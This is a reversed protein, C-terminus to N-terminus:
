QDSVPKADGGAYVHSCGLRAAEAAPDNNTDLGRVTVWGEDRYRAAASADSGLPLYIRPAAEGPTVAQVLTDTFLTLGTAPERHRDVAGDGTLYRGGAGLEGRTGKAFFTFSVGCHYEWGRREIPDITVELAPASEMITSAVTTLDDREQTAASGLSLAALRELMVSAKGTAGLLAIFLDTAEGGLDGRLKEIAAADKRDLAPNLRNAIDAGFGFDRCAAPVLTSICLDVSLGQIGLAMLTDSAMVVVEADAARSDTGIIEAGVQGFQRAGRLQSGRIRLIQGAYSLRLPRPANALRSMAIRAIQPTMDARLAMMRQSEPDMLRFADNATAAGPGRFLTDEFELLPPKVRDYGQAAFMQMLREVVHAEFAADPPLTDSMGTPLLTADANDNDANM